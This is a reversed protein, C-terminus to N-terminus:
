IRYCKVIVNKGISVRHRYEVHACRTLAQLRKTTTTQIDTQGIKKFRKEKSTVSIPHIYNRTLSTLILPFKLSLKKAQKLLQEFNDSDFSGVAAILHM